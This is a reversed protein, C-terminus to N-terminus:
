RNLTGYLDFSADDASGSSTGLAVFYCGSLSRSITTAGPTTTLSVTSTASGDGIALLLSTGARIMGEVSTLTVAKSTCVRLTSTASAGYISSNSGPTTSAWGSFAKDYSFVTSTAVVAGTSDVALGNGSAINPLYIQGFHAITSSAYTSSFLTSTANTFTQLATWTNAHALNLTATLTGSTTIPTGGITLTSNSDSLGVSTVTGSGGGSGGICTGAIAFCGAALNIGGTSSFTSTATSFNIGNTDGISLLTGPTSSGIGLNGNHSATLVTTANPTFTIDGTGAVTKFDMSAGATTDQFQAYTPGNFQIQQYGNLAGASNVSLYTTAGNKVDFLDSGASTTAITLSGIVTSSATALLGGNFSLMTSTANGPFPYSFSSGGGSYQPINLTSGDFTAAGSSGSTTLTLPLQYDTNAVATAVASTGAGKLLGSLTTSGTGGHSVGLTGTIGTSLPLGTANTLTLSAPTGYNNSGSFTNNNALLTSSAATITDSTDGLTLTTGNLVITSNALKSNAISGALMANTVKGAGITTTISTAGSGSVDGSLTITQNGTLYGKTGGWYDASTTSFFNNVGKWYDASTTSFSSTVYGSDNTWQSIDPSKFSSVALNLSSTAISKLTNGNVVEALNGATWSTTTGLGNFQLHSGSTGLGTLPYDAYVSTLGGSGSGCDSGTGSINGSSDVHLCQISGTIDSLTLGNITAGGSLTLETSTAAAPFPYAFTDYGADNTWQSINNSAFGATTLNLSSTAISTVHGNDSVQALHGVTWPSTTSLANSSSGSPTSCTFTGGATVASMFDGSSCTKATILSYDTGNSAASLVGSSAKLIGTLTASITGLNAASTIQPASTTAFWDKLSFLTSTAIATSIASGSVIIPYTGAYTAGAYQPINLVGTSNSYTAAGSSGSTTLSIASRARADTFYLNSGESLNSTSKTTLWYAASSTSFSSTVFGSDNTLDSTKTPITPTGTLQSYPLSLSPLTTISKVSTTAALNKVFDAISRAATYYLNSGETVQSTTYDGSQATVAGTRGFVSSVGSQSALTSTALYEYEGNKGGVLLSGYAPLTSTGTGGSFIKVVTPAAEATFFFGFL